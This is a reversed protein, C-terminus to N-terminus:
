EKPKEPTFLHSIDVGKPTPIPGKNGGEELAQSIGEQLTYPDRNKGVTGTKDGVSCSRYGSAGGDLAHMIHKGPWAPIRYGANIGGHSFLVDRCEGDIGTLVPIPKGDLLHGANPGGLDIDYLFVRSNEVFIPFSAIGVDSKLEAEIRQYDESGAYGEQELRHVQLANAEIREYLKRKGEPMGPFYHTEVKAPDIGRERVQEQGEEDIDLPLLRLTRLQAKLDKDM